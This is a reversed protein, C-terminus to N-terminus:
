GSKQAESVKEKDPERGWVKFSRQLIRTSPKFHRLLFEGNEQKMGDKSTVPDCETLVQLDRRCREARM